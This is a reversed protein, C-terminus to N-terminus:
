ATAGEKEKPEALGLVTKFKKSKLNSKLSSRAKIVQQAKEPDRFDQNVYSDFLTLAAAELVERWRAAIPERATMETPDINLANGLGEHFSSNTASFFSTRITEILTTESGPKNGGSELAAQVAGILFRCATDGAEVLRDAFNDLEQQAEGNPHLHLPEESLIYLKPTAKDMAWGAVLLKDKPLAQDDPTRPISRRLRRFQNVTRAIHNNKQGEKGSSTKLSIAAWNPYTLSNTKAKRPSLENESVEQYPTLPHRWHGYKVGYPETAYATIIFDDIQGTLDCPCRATNEEFQLRIRRPMGFYAQLAHAKPDKQHLESTGKESTLTPALWPFIRPLDERRPIGDDSCIVNSWVLQWLNLPAGDARRPLILTTLPGGGRLSTLYGRGGGSTFQQLTYLAIAAAGRSLCRYHDRKVMLDANKKITNEGASDIFLAEVPITAEGLDAEDQIFRPGPGDLEFADTLPGFAAELETKSPPNIYRAGWEEEEPALAITFLGILFELTAINLDPRPWAPMLAPNAPDGSTLDAPSIISQSGDAHSVPLWPTTLLNFSM